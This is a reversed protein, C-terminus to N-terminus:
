YTFIAACNSRWHECAILNYPVFVSIRVDKNLCVSCPFSIVRVRFFRCFNRLCIWRERPRWRKSAGASTSSVIGVIGGKQLCSLSTNEWQPAAPLFGSASREANARESALIHHRLGGTWRLFQNALDHCAVAFPVRRRHARFLEPVLQPPAQDRFISITASVSDVALHSLSACGAGGRWVVGPPAGHM